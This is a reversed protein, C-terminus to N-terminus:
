GNEKSRFASKRMMGAVQQANDSPIRELQTIIREQREPTQNQSLKWKGELRDIRIRFGVIGAMLKDIYDLNGEDMRYTGGAGEYKLVMALLDELLENKDETLELRGYVHVAAYNWTPVSLPTEYWSSSIYSHPGQFVAMVEQEGIDKWQPNSRAMHGYLYNEASNAMLPLHTAFPGGNHTSFLIGFSHEEIFEYMLKRDEVLFHKPIYM